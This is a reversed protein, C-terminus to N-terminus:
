QKTPNVPKLDFWFASARFSYEKGDKEYILEVYIAHESPTHEARIFKFEDKM